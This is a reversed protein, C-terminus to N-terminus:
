GPPSLHRTASPPIPTFAPGEMKYTLGLLRCTRFLQFPLLSRMTPEERILITKLLCVLLQMPRILVLPVLTLIAILWCMRFSEMLAAPFIFILLDEAPM